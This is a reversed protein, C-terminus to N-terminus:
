SVLMNKFCLCEHLYNEFMHPKAEHLGEPEDSKLM